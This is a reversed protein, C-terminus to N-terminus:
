FRLCAPWLLFFFAVGPKLRASTVEVDDSYVVKLFHLVIRQKSVGTMTVVLDVHRPQPSPLSSLRYLASTYRRTEGITVATRCTQM